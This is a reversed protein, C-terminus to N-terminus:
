ARGPEPAAGGLLDALPRDTQLALELARTLGLAEDSSPEFVEIKPGMLLLTDHTEEVREGGVDYALRVPRLAIVRRHRAVAFPDATPLVHFYGAATYPGVVARMPYARTRVRLEPNGRPGAAVVVCLEEAEIVAAPLDYERGDELARLNVDQVALAEAAGLFDALRDGEFDTAGGVTYDDAYARFEVQM